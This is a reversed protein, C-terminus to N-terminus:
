VEAYDRMDVDGGAELEIEGRALRVVVEAVREPPMGRMDNMRTATM